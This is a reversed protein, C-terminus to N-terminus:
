QYRRPPRMHWRYELQIAVPILRTLVAHVCIRLVDGRRLWYGRPRRVFLSPEVTM